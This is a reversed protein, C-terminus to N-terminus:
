AQTQRPSTHVPVQELVQQNRRRLFFPKPNGLLQQFDDLYTYVCPVLLLSLLTSSLVGGIIVVAMPARSEAGSELKMALPIMACVITATTMLIPRLRTRGAEVLAEFRQYGRARLTNTYDVILIANKAVLGMLMIMGIMSFLNLTNGTVILGGFAGILSVPLALMIALPYLWSEYLAVLLMYILIVSLILASSLASTAADMQRVSGGLVYSYGVPMPVDALAKRMDAAVDSLARGDVTTNISLVRQRNSRSISLPGTAMELTAVQGLRVVAPASTSTTGTTGATTAGTTSPVLPVSELRALDLRDIDGAILTIDMESRGEPRLQGATIGALLSRLTSSVQQSTVGLEAMKRHDMKVRIEPQGAVDPNRVEAVGPVTKAVQEIQAALEKLTDLNEGMIDIRLGMGGGGGGMSSQVNSRVTADPITAGMRRIQNQIDWISRQRESKDALQVTMSTGGGFGGGGGGRVTTFINQVEPLQFLQAELQTAAANYAQLSTGSPLSLSVNMQSDDEQPAYEVGLLKLPILSLSVAFAAAAVFLILPRHGLAWGLVRGYGQALREYNREWWKPFWSLIHGRAGNAGNEEDKKLWRSALMPTLTFSVFLSFLTAAAITLGYERFMRGIMGSMFAVPLYVVIDVFTIAMAALGIESRGNLAAERPADGKQLHRHINELVVISDDVLIGITLALAMMSITNLSFNLLYMVLFTSILSTPIALIVILTNRWAHLFLMLVTGCLFVALVLDREIAELANRTFRSTDNSIVLKLGVPLTPNIKDITAKVDEVVKLSNAEAAKAISLGVSEEGNLRQFSTREKFAETITAVDRLRVPGNTTTTVVLDALDDASQFLGVSRVNLTTRGQQFTGGPSDVNERSIANQTTTLTVGYAELKTYDVRIRVERQLGGSVSVDAVGPVAMLRPQIREAALTYLEDQPLTGTLSINMIPMSNPDMRNVTPTGADAPLRSRVGAVRRDIDIAAKDADWGEVFQIRLSGRGQSADSELTEIGSVGSVTQELVRLIQNEVDVPSAGPYSVNISVFPVSVNPMRDVRLLSYSVIGMIVIGLILMLVALPRNIALRTLGV